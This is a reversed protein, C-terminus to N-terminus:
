RAHPRRRKKGELQDLEDDDIGFHHAVEHIVTTRVEEVVAAHGRSGAESLIGQRYITVRDPVALHYGAGRQHKPVGEYLGLLDDGPPYGLEQLKAPAPREEVVVAVNDMRERIYAPLNDLAEAVLRDFTERSAAPSVRERAARYRALRQQRTGEPMGDM